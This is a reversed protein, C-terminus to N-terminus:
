PVRLTQHNGVSAGGVMHEQVCGGEDGVLPHHIEADAHSVVGKNWDKTPAGGHKSQVTFSHKDPVGEVDRSQGDWEAAKPGVKMLMPTAEYPSKLVAEM